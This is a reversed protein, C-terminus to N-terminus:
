QVQKLMENGDHNTIKSASVLETHCMIRLLLVEEKEIESCEKEKWVDKKTMGFKNRFRKVM